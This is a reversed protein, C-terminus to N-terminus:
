LWIRRLLGSWSHEILVLSGVDNPRSIGCVRCGFALAVNCFLRTRETAVFNSSKKSCFLQLSRFEFFKQLLFLVMEPGVAATLFDM